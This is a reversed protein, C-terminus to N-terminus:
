LLVARVAADMSKQLNRYEPSPLLITRFSEFDRHKQNLSGFLPEGPEYPFLPNCRFFDIDWPLAVIGEEAHFILQKQVLHSCGYQVSGHTRDRVAAYHPDCKGTRRQRLRTVTTGFTQTVM